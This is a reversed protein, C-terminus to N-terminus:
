RPRYSVPRTSKPRRSILLSGPHVITNAWLDSRTEFNLKGQRLQTNETKLYRISRNMNQTWVKKGIWNKGQKTLWGPHKDDRVAILKAAVRDNRDILSGRARSIGSKGKGRRVGWHMGKVGFHEIYDEESIVMM